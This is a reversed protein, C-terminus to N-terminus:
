GVAPQVNPFSVSATSLPQNNGKSLAMSTKLGSGNERILKSYSVTKKDYGWMEHVTLLTDDTRETLKKDGKWEAKTDTQPRESVIHCSWWTSLFGNNGIAPVGLPQSEAANLVAASLCDQCACRRTWGSQVKVATANPVSFGAAHVVCTASHTQFAGRCQRHGARYRSGDSCGISRWAVWLCREERMCLVSKGWVWAMCYENSGM